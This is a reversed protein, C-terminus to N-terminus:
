REPEMFVSSDGLRKMERLLDKGWLRFRKHLDIRAVMHEVCLESKDIVDDCEKESMNEIEAMSIACVGCNITREIEGVNTMKKLIFSSFIFNLNANGFDRVKKIERGIDILLGLPLPAPLLLSISEIILNLKQINYKKLNEPQLFDLLRKEDKALTEKVYNKQEESLMYSGKFKDVYNLIGKQFDIKYDSFIPLVEKSKDPDFASIEQEFIYELISCLLFSEKIKPIYDPEHKLCFNIFGERHGPFVYFYLARDKAVELLGRMLFYAYNGGEDNREDGLAVRLDELQSKTPPSYKSLLELVEKTIETSFYGYPKRELLEIKQLDGFCHIKDFFLAIKPLLFKLWDQPSAEVGAVLWTYTAPDIIVELM